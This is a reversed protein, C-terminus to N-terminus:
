GPKAVMLWFTVVVAGFAPWGLAFWWRMARHYADPLPEAREVAARALRWMRWQLWVVPLWCAGALLYLAIAWRLWAAGLDLGAIAVMAFGTAPQVVVAPLTFVTDALVVNAAVAAIVRPDGGRDARWMFFAIGLGTGLLLTSSLVHAIKLATYADM